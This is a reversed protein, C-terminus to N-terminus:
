HTNECTLLGAPWWTGLSEWARLVLETRTVRELLYGWTLAPRAAAGRPRPRSGATVSM